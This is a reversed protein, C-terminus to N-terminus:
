EDIDEKEQLSMLQRYSASTKLLEAHPAIAAIRGDEILMIRDMNMVTKIKQSVFIVTPRDKMDRLNTLFSKETAADLASTSDDFIVIGPHGALSRAIGIRQKQGGSLGTGNSSIEYDYGEAKGEIIESSCSIRSAERIDEELQGSADPGIESAEEASGRAIAAAEAVNRAM